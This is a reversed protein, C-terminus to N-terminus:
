EKKYNRYLLYKNALKKAIEFDYPFDIDISEFDNMIFPTSNKINIKKKKLFDKAYFIYIAGNPFFVKRFSQRNATLFKEKFFPILTNKKSKLAKFIKADSEKVSILCKTSKKVFKQLASNIHLHNRFPSTPQLYIIITKDLNINKKIKNLFDLIVLNAEINDSCLSKLRKIPIGGRKKAKKLIKSCDSTVYTKDIFKSKNSSIIAIEFLGLGSIKKINKNKLGKSNKKSPILSIVKFNKIM